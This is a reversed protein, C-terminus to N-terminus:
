SEEEGQNEEPIIDSAKDADFSFYISANRGRLKKSSNLM